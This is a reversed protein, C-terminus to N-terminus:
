ACRQSMWLKINPLSEWGFAHESPGHANLHDLRKMAEDATPQRGIEIWWMVFYAQQPAEFWDAKKQYVRKHVTNWVFHELDAPTEWVSLNVVFRADDNVRVDTAGASAADGVLRWVFGPSREAVVNIRDIAGVFEALRPSELDDLARAVNLQALHRGKPQTISM